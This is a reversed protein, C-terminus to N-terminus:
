PEPCGPTELPASALDIRVTAPMGLRLEGQPNCVYVRAQYVLHSRVERTEVSKPTFEATPSVYGVWGAYHEDPFSDTTVSARQGPRIRGLDPEDVYVRVWMPDTLALTYVPRQPSAMDGPELIRNRIVGAAPAHLDADSLHKRALALAARLADRQSRAAAIDEARPGALALDLTARLATLRAQAAEAAARQDDLVAQPAAGRQVMAETRKLRLRAIALDAEAAAVDARAKRLEEPRSGAELRAVVEKQAALEAAAQEVAAELRAKDLRGLLEGARVQQGERAYLAVIRESGNFALNVERIDVNGHLVLQGAQSEREDRLLWWAAVSAALLAVGFAGAAIRRRASV